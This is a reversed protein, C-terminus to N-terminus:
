VIGTHHGQHVTVRWGRCKEDCGHRSASEVAANATSALSRCRVDVTRSLKQKMKSRLSRSNGMSYLGLESNLPAKQDYQPETRLMVSDARGYASWLCTPSGSKRNAKQDRPDDARQLDTTLKRPPIITPVRSEWLGPVDLGLGILFWVVSQPGCETSLPRDFHLRSYAM